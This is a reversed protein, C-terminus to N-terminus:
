MNKNKSDNYINLFLKLIYYIFVVKKAHTAPIEKLLSISQAKINYNTKLEKIYIKKHKQDSIYTRHHISIPNFLLLPYRTFIFGIYIWLLTGYLM